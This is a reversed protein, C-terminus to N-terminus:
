PSNSVIRRSTLLIRWDMDLAMSLSMSSVAQAMWRPAASLLDEPLRSGAARHRQGFLQAPQVTRDPDVDARLGRLLDRQRHRRFDLRHQGAGARAIVRIQHTSEDVHHADVRRSRDQLDLTPRERNNHALGAIGSTREISEQHTIRGPAVDLAIEAPDGIEIHGLNNERLDARVWVDQASIFTALPQGASAFHGEALQLDGVVGTGPALIATNELDFEAQELAAVAAKIAPNEEGAIGLTEQARRLEAQASIEGSVAQDLQTTARDRDAESLAGPNASNIAEVRNYYRQARDLRARAVGLQGAASEVASVGARVEQGALELQARASNVALQFPRPNIM